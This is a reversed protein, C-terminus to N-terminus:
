IKFGKVEKLIKIIVDSPIFSPEQKICQNWDETHANSDSLHKELLKDIAANIRKASDDLNISLNNVALLLGETYKIEHIQKALAVRQLQARNAQTIFGWLLGVAIPIPALLSFYSLWTFPETM